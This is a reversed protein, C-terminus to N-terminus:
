LNMNILFHNLIKKVQQPLNVWKEYWTVFFIMWFIMRIFFINQPFFAHLIITFYLKHSRQNRKSGYSIYFMYSPLSYRWFIKNFFDLFLLILDRCTNKDHCTTFFKCDTIPFTKLFFQTVHHHPMDIWTMNGQSRMIDM